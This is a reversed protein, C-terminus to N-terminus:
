VARRRGLWGLTLHLTLHWAVVSPLFAVVMDMAAIALGLMPILVMSIFVVRLATIGAEGMALVYSGSVLAVLVALAGISHMPALWVFDDFRPDTRFRRFRM